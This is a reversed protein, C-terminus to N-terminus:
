RIINYWTSFFLPPNSILIYLISFAKQTVKPITIWPLYHRWLRLFSARSISSDEDEKFQMHLATKTICPPLNTKTSDPMKDGNKRAFYAIWSLCQIGAMSLMGKPRGPKQLYKAGDSIVIILIITQVICFSSSSRQWHCMMVYGQAFLKISFSDGWWVM